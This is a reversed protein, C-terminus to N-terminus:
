FYRSDIVVDRTALTYSILSQHSVIKPFIEASERFRKFRAIFVRWVQLLAKFAIKGTKMVLAREVARGSERGAESLTYTTSAPRMAESLHARAFDLPHTHM